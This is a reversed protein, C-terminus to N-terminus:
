SWTRSASRGAMRDRRRDARDADRDRRVPRASRAFPGLTGPCGARPARAGVRVYRRAGGRVAAPERPLHRALGVRCDAPRRRGPRGRDRHVRGGDVWRGRPRAPAPRAPVRRQAARAFEAAHGRRRRRAARPGRDADRARRRRRMCTVRARVAPPRRRVPPARRLPRRACRGVADVGRVRAHVCRRGM